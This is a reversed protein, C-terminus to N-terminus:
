FNDNSNINYNNTIPIITLTTLFHANFIYVFADVNSNKLKQFYQTLKNDNTDGNTIRLERFYWEDKANM